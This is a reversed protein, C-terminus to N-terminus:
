RLGVDLDTREFILVINHVFIICNTTLNISNFVTALHATAPRALLLISMISTCTTLLMSLVFCANAYRKLRMEKFPADRKWLLFEYVLVFFHGASIAYLAADWGHLMPQCFLLVLVSAHDLFVHWIKNERLLAVLATGTKREPVDCNDLDFPVCKLHHAVTLILCGVVIVVVVVLLVFVAIDVDPQSSASHDRAMAGLSEAINNVIPTCRPLLHLGVFKAVITLSANKRYWFVYIAFAFAVAIAIGTIILNAKISGWASHVGLVEGGLPSLLYIIQGTSQQAGSSARLNKLRYGANGTASSGSVISLWLDMFSTIQIAKVLPPDSLEQSQITPVDLFVYREESSNNNCQLVFCLGLILNTQASMAPTSSCHLIGATFQSPGLETVHSYRHDVGQELVEVLCNSSSLTTGGDYLSYLVNRIYYNAGGIFVSINFGLPGSLEEPQIPDAQITVRGHSPAPTTGDNPTASPHLATVFPAALAAVRNAPNLAAMFELPMCILSSTNPSLAAALPSLPTPTSADARLASLMLFIILVEFQKM